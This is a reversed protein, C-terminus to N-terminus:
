WKGMLALLDAAIRDLPTILTAGGLKVLAGPMGWVIASEEAEAITRGGATQLQRMTEAGDAGMGTMLVGILREPGVHLMASAVLRDVSPHWHYDASSPAAMAVLGAARRAIVLDADGRGIYAHGPELPVARSVESITLACIRDLRQALAGTFSAPMHQAIVIPWPFDGPLATLLAELAPPGGTSCGVLVLGEGPLATGRPPLPPAIRRVPAPRPASRLRIREALRLTRPIRASAAARVKEILAPALDDIALSIAGSPKAVFDVAGLAMAELTADAGQATLASVMVVPTPRELMIRDLCALGDMGPMNIDLTIVQPTFAHLKAMAEAGDRALEVQFEGSAAFLDTLLRRMLPSDDVILLKIM